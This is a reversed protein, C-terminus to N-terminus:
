HIDMKQDLIGDLIVVGGCWTKMDGKTGTTQSLKGSREQKQHGQCIQPM